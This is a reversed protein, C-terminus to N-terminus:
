PRNGRVPSDRSGGSDGSARLYYPRWWTITVLVLVNLIFATIMLTFFAETSLISHQVCAIDMVVFALEARGLMGFGLVIRSMSRATILYVGVGTLVSVALVLALSM